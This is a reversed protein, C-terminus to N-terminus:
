PNKFYKTMRLVYNLEFEEPKKGTLEQLGCIIEIQFDSDIVDSFYDKIIEDTIRHKLKVQNFEQSDGFHLASKSEFQKFNLINM